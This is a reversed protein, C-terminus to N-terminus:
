CVVVMGFIRYWFLVFIKLLNVVERLYDGECIILVVFLSEKKLDNNEESKM